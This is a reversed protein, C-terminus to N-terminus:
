QIMYSNFVRTKIACFLGHAHRTSRPSKERTAAGWALQILLELEFGLSPGRRNTWRGGPEASNIPGCPKM